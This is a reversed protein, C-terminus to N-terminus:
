IRYTIKKTESITIKNKTQLYQILIAIQKDELKLHSKFANTLAQVNSPRSKWKTFCQNMKQIIEPDKEISFVIPEALQFPAYIIRNGDQKLLQRSEFINIIRNIEEENLVFYYGQSKTRIVNSLATPTKPKSIEVQQALTDILSAHDIFCYTLEGNNPEMLLVKNNLLQTIILVAIDRQIQEDFENLEQKLIKQYVVSILDTYSNPRLAQSERLTKGVKLCCRRIFQIDQYKPIDNEVVSSLNPTTSAIEQVEPLQSIRIINKCYVNDLLHEVLVDFGNDRSMIYITANEDQATIKGLYYSLYFDLANKGTKAIRIFHVNKGFRCLVECLEVPLTKQQFKGLFLWIHCNDIHLSNFEFPEPQLNEFDILIHKM